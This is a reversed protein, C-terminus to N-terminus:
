FETRTSPNRTFYDFEVKIFMIDILFHFTTCMETAVAKV